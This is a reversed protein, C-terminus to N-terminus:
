YVTVDDCILHFLFALSEIVLLSKDYASRILNLNTILWVILEHSIYAGFIKQYFSCWYLFGNM